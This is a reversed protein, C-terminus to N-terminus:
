KSGGAKNKAAARSLRDSIARTLGAATERPSECWIRSHGAQDLRRLLAFLNRAIEGPDGSESFWYFHPSPHQERVAKLFVVAEMAQAPPRTGEDFLSLPTRPSYHRKLTGPAMLALGNEPAPSPQRYGVPVGLVEGIAEASIGGPRLISVEAPNTLDVITSELGIEAPGGDLIFPLASAFSDAVHQATSPSVYGFPNASPAALPQGVAALLSRAVPHRPIRLAVSDLGATVITPIVTKKRLILTLPGPWFHAALKEAEPTLSALRNAWALDEVHVILPDLLPRGKIQFIRRCASEDLALGALGYVTETPMAVLCGRRLAEAFFVINDPTAPYVFSSAGRHPPAKGCFQDVYQPM